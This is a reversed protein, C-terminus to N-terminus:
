GDKGDEVEFAEGDEIWIGAGDPNSDVIELWLQFGKEEAIKALQMQSKHDLLSGERAFLVRLRPSGAMAIAAAAKIREAQSAQAFPVTGILIVKNEHDYSMGPIPFVTGGLLESIEARVAVLADEEDKHKSVAAAATEEARALLERKGATKADEEHALMENHIVATSIREAGELEAITDRYDALTEERQKEAKNKESHADDLQAQLEEIRTDILPIREAVEKGRQVLNRRTADLTELLTNHENATALDATLVELSRKASPAGLKAVEATIEEMAKIAQDADRGYDRRRDYSGDHKAELLELKEALGLVGLVVKVQDATDMELFAVPDAFYGRLEKLIAAPTGPVKSGDATEITISPKKKGDSGRKYRKKIKLAGLDIEVVSKHAGEAIPLVTREAGLTDLMSGILSSKGEGNEGRVLVLGTPSPHVHAVRIRQFSDVTLELVTLPQSPDILQPTTEPTTM